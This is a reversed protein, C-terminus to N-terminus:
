WWVHANLTITALAGALLLLLLLDGLERCETLRQLRAGNHDDKGAAKSTAAGHEQLTELATKEEDRARVLEVTDRKTADIGSVDNGGGGLDIDGRDVHLVDSIGGELLGLSGLLGLTSSTEERLVGSDTLNKLVLHALHVGDISSAQLELLLNILLEDSGTLLNVLKRGVKVGGEREASTLIRV